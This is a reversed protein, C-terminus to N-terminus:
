SISEVVVVLWRVAAVLGAAWLWVVGLGGGANLLGAGFASAPIGMSEILVSITVSDRHSHACVM